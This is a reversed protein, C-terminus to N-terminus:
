RSEQRSRLCCVRRRQRLCDGRPPSRSPGRGKWIRWQGPRKDAVAARCTKWQRFAFVLPVPAPAPEKEARYDLPDADRGLAYLGQVEQVCADDRIYDLLIAKPVVTSRSAGPNVHLGEPLPRGLM